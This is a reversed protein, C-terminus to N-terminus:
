TKPQQQPIVVTQSQQTLSLSTDAPVAGSELHGSIKSRLADPAADLRDKKGQLNPKAQILFTSLMAFGRPSAAPYSVRRRSDAM